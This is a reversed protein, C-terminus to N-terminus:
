YLSAPKNTYRLYFFTMVGLIAAAILALASAYGYNRAAGWLTFFRKYVYTMMVETTGAPRGGTLVLVLETIKLSGLSALMIVIQLVPGLM